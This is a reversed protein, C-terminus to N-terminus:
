LIIFDIKNRVWRMIGDRSSHDKSLKKHSSKSIYGLLINKELYEGVKEPHVYSLLDNVMQNVPFVHELESKSKDIGKEQYAAPIFEGLDRILYNLNSEKLRISISSTMISAIDAIISGYKAERRALDKVHKLEAKVQAEHEIFEEVAQRCSEVLRESAVNVFNKRIFSLGVPTELKITLQGILDNLSHDLLICNFNRYDDSRIECKGTIYVGAFVYELGGSQVWSISFDGENGLSRNAAQVSHYHSMNKDDDIMSTFDDRGAKHYVMRIDVNNEELSSVLENFLPTTMTIANIGLINALLVLPNLSKTVWM